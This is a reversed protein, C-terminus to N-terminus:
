RGSSGELVEELLDLLAFWSHRDASADYAVADLDRLDSQPDTFGHRVGSYAHFHWHACAEDMEQFFAMVHDRPVMPDADGHLVLLRAKIAGPRAKLATDLLGHYSAALVLEHGSRAAELAAQGGLCYGIAAMPLTGAVARLAEVAAGIRARYVEPDRRLDAALARTEDPSASAVGYHDAIMVLYGLDALMLARRDMAPTRNAITPYLVIAAKPASTPRAL